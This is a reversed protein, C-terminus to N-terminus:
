KGSHSKQIRRWLNRVIMDHTQDSRTPRIIEDVDERTVALLGVGCESFKAVTVAKMRKFRSFPMAVYSYNVFHHYHAAQAIATAVDNLKLEIFLSEILEPRARGVRPAYKGAALDCQHYIPTCLHKVWLFGNIELWCTVPDYM